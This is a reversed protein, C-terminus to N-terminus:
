VTNDACLVWRSAGGCGWEARLQCEGFEGLEGELWGEALVRLQFGM